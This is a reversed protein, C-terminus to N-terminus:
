PLAGRAEEAVHDHLHHLGGIITAVVVTWEADGLPTDRNLLSMALPASLMEAVFDAGLSTRLEGREISRAVIVVFPASRQAIYRSIAERHDPHRREALIAPLVHGLPTHAAVQVLEHRLARLDGPLTGTDPVTLEPLTELAALALAIKDPWRRYVTLKSVGAREAVREIALGRIGHESIEALAAELVRTGHRESRPRGPGRRVAEGRGAPGAPRLASTTASTMARGYCIRYPANV